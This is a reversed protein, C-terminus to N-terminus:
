VWKNIQESKDEFQSALAKVKAKLILKRGKITRTFVLECNVVLRLWQGAFYVATNKNKGLLEPVSHYDEQDTFFLLLLTYLNLVGRLYATMVVRRLPM